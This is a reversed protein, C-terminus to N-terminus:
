VAIEATGFAMGRNPLRLLWEAAPTVLGGPSSVGIDLPFANDVTAISLKDAMAKMLLHDEHFRKVLGQSLASSDRGGNVAHFIVQAGAKALCRTLHHDPMPTCFPNAWMDNCILGGM